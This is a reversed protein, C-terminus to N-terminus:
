NAMSQKIKIIFKLLEDKLFLKYTSLFVEKAVGTTFLLELSVKGEKLMNIYFAVLNNEVSIM